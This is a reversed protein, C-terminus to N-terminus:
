PESRAREYKPSLESHPLDEYWARFGSSYWHGRLEWALQVGPLRRFDAAQREITGWHEQDLRGSLWQVRSSEFLRFIANAYGVFRVWEKEDLAKPDIIGTAWIRALDDNDIVSRVVDNYLSTHAQSSAGRISATAQRVQFGVFVLSAVVAIGSVIQSISAWQDLTM